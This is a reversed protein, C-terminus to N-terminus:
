WTDIFTSSQLPQKRKANLKHKASHLGTILWNRTEKPDIVADISLFQAINVAKGREYLADVLEQFRQQREAPNKISELEKKYGLQIQGELGMAGFEATPWAISFLSSKHFSGASMAMAGLGYAKRLVVTFFPVDLSAGAVFLRSAHRVLATKEAEPGVMIGPTDCLSLIPIGHTNCLQMFRAFKDAEAHGIAGANYMPNNSIVGVPMGAIRILATVAGLGFKSRLELVSKDDAISQIIKRVDYARTRREPVLTRLISTDPEQWETLNGQFYSLYQRAVKAATAEDKVVLDVSGAKAHMSAPGVQEPAFAGLGAGEIMAPGGMGITANQTAIVVDSCGLLAANGAFCRGAAIGVLPVKGSLKAYNWFTPNALNVGGINDSDAPRGGGGEAFLIVPLALEYALEFMRDHKKHGVMGQTGAFVTYDYSAVMCRSKDPGFKDANVTALGYIYGDAPSTKRLEEPSRTSHQGAVALAAYEYFSGADCINAINERATLQGRQRRREVAEPRHEDLTHRHRDFVEALDARITNPDDDIEQSIDEADADVDHETLTLLLVGQGVVEGQQVEISQVTAVYPAQIGHEMKMAEIVLLEQGKRVTDGVAVQIQSISGHLPSTIAGPVEQVIDNEIPETEQDQVSRAPYFIPHPTASNQTLTDLNNEIFSTPIPGTHQLLLQTLNRLFLLNSPVGQIYFECLARYAKNLAVSFHSSKSHIILKALLSDFNLSPELGSYVFTDLRIGPGSPPNFTNLVGFEEAAGVVGMTEMNIRYQISFGRPNDIDKQQLGLENLCRGSAVQIQAAVIDIGFVEETVTHEVQLRPNVEMFYFNPAQNENPSCTVLFEFTALGKLQCSQAMTISAAYIADKTHPHLNPSPAIEVVKQNRRQLSCDRDGIHTFQKGDGIVQVEIHRVKPIFEEIYVDNNGFALQAESQCSKFANELDELHHVIRVGRGGGGEIAKIIVPTGDKLSLMFDKAQELTIAQQSGRTLPIGLENALERARAKDGFLSLTEPAPGIFKIGAQTCQQAFGASESLFGYGPHIADCGHQQAISIIQQADLYASVGQGELMIADTTFNRHSSSEDDKPYIAVTEIGLETAARAIRIAIEGRNAILIKKFMTFVCGGQVHETM